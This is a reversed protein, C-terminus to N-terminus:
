ANKVEARSGPLHDAEDGGAKDGSVTCFIVLEEEQWSNFGCEKTTSGM